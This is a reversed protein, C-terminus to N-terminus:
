GIRFILRECLLVALYMVNVATFTLIYKSKDKNVRNVYYKYSILSAMSAILTGLGGLNVGLILAEENESFRSLLLAAPVNSIFQSVTVATILERGKILMELINYIKGIRTINGTFIFFGIFTMLLIYDAKPRLLGSKRGGKCLRIVRILVEGTLVSLIFIKMPITHLMVFIGLGFLVLYVPLTKKGYQSNFNNQESIHGRLEMNKGPLFLLSVALLVMATLTYPLTIMIFDQLEMESIGYLYINQPNGIPTFMSGLNAAVTQLVVVPILLDERDCDSLITIAFPIFTILAVDNTILMASFFSIFVFVAVLQWSKKTHNLLVNGIIEFVGNDSMGQVVIMLGWLMGLSKFDIYDIYKSDPFVFFSSVVALIWATILVPDSFYKKLDKYWKM